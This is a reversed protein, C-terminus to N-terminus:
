LEINGMEVRITQGCRPCTTEPMRLTVRGGCNPCEGVLDEREAMESVGDAIVDSLADLDLDIRVNSKAM